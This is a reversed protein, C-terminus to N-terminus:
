ELTGVREPPWFRFVARGLIHDKAVYGWYHSDFSQNRNDGLVLYSDAPVEVPGWQYDPKAAIYSEEQAQENIYVLGDKVEVKDGPIGIVRKIFADKQHLSEPPHFVIIDGHQPPEFDYSIKEIILRDNIQLTPEMSGSPIYRAEAVYTRIGFALLVSLGITQLGEIWPNIPKNSPPQTSKSDTM